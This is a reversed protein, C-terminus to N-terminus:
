SLIKKGMTSKGIQCTKCVPCLSGNYKEESRANCLPCKKAGGAENGDMVKLDVSSIQYVIELDYLWKEDFNINMQNSGKRECVTLVRKFKNVTDDNALGPKEEIIRFYKRILFATTIFCESKCALTIALRLTLDRHVPHLNFQAMILTLELVRQPDNGVTKKMKDTSLAMIYEVCIKIQKDVEDVEQKSEVSLLPTSILIERFINLAEDFKAEKTFQYGKHLKKELSKLNFLQHPRNNGKESTIYQNIPKTFAMPSLYYSGSLYIDLMQSTILEKSMLGIQSTLLECAGKFNGVAVHEGPLLSTNVINKELPDDRKIWVETKIPEAKDMPIDMDDGLLDDMNLDDAGWLADAKGDAKMIDDFNEEVKKDSQDNYSALNDVGMNAVQGEENSTAANEGGEELNMLAAQDETVDFHPWNDMVEKSKVWTNALPQAPVLAVGKRKYEINKDYGVPLSKELTEAFDTIGHRKALAYALSIQGIEVLLKCREKIDGNLISCNFSTMIDDRNKSSEQLKKLAETNGTIVYLNALKSWNQSKQYAIEVINHCGQRLAETALTEFCKKDKLQIAAEYAVELNGSEIALQFRSKVEKALSLAIAPINKKHLYAIMGQGVDENNSVYKKVSVLDNKFISVKFMYEKRDITLHEVESDPNLTMLIDGRNDILMYSKDVSKIIGQDGNILTYKVHNDTSYLILGEKEWMASVIKTAENVRAVQKFQKNMIFISKKAILACYMGNPSWSVSKLKTLAFEDISNVNKKGVTDYLCINSKTKTIIKGVGGMYIEEVNEVNALQGMTLFTETDSLVLNGKNVCILKERGIFVANTFQTTKIKAEYTSKNVEILLIKTEGSKGLHYKLMFVWKQTNYSNLTIRKPTLPGIEGHPTKIIDVMLEKAVTVTIDAMMFKNDKVYFVNDGIHEYSIRCRELALITQTNDGGTAILPLTPHSALIWQREGEKTYSDLLGGNMDWVRITKDESNSIINQTKPNVTCSSVNNTHGYFTDKEYVTGSTYRWIKVKKDDASSIILNQTPHFCVWNVGRDHADGKAVPEVDNPSFNQATSGTTLRERLKTFDWLRITQDLSGSVIYDQKPHFQACMVYHCHGTLLVLSQRNQWNWIRITHDDSASLVWSLEHHFQVTRIFDVHGNLTFVKKKNLFNWGYIVCDHGGSVLLPRTPHFHVCRVCGTHGQFSCLLTNVKYDFIFIDGTYNSAQIWSRTPHFCLGKIKGKRVEFKVHM